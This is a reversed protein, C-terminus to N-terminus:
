GPMRRYIDSASLTTLYSVLLYIYRYFAGGGGGGGKLVNM